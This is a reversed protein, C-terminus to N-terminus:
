LLFKLLSLTPLSSLSSLPFSLPSSLLSAPPHAPSHPHPDMVSLCSSRHPILLSGVPAPFEVWLCNLTFSPLFIQYVKGGRKPRVPSSSSAGSIAACSPSSSLYAAKFTRAHTKEPSPPSLSLFRSRLNSKHPLTKFGFLSSINSGAATRM